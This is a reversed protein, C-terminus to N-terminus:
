HGGGGGTLSLPNCAGLFDFMKAGRTILDFNMWASILNQRSYIEYGLGLSFPDDFSLSSPQLPVTTHYPAHPLALVSNM